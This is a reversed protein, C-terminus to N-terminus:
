QHPEHRAARNAPRREVVKAILDAQGAVRLGEVPEVTRKCVRGSRRGCCNRNRLIPLFVLLAREVPVDHRREQLLEGKGGGSGREDGGGNCRGTDQPEIGAVASRLRNAVEPFPRQRLLFAEVGEPRRRLDRSRSHSWSV